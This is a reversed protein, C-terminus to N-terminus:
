RREPRSTMAVTRDNTRIVPDGLILAADCMESELLDGHKEPQLPEGCRGGDAVTHWSEAM